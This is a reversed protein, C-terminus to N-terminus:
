EGVMAAALRDLLGDDAPMLGSAPLRRLLDVWRHNQAQARKLYPVAEEERGEGALTVGM